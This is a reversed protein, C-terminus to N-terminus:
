ASARGSRTLAEANFEHVRSRIAGATSDRLFRRRQLRAARAQEDAADRL